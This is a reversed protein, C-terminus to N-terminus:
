DERKSEDSRIYRLFAPAQTDDTEKCYLFPHIYDRGKKLSM